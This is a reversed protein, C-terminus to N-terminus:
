GRECRGATAAGPRQADGHPHQAHGRSGGAGHAAARLLGRPAHVPVAADHAGYSRQASGAGAPVVVRDRRRSPLIVRACVTRTLPRFWRCCRWQCGCTSVVPVCRPVRARACVLCAGSFRNLFTALPQRYPSSLYGCCRFQHLVRELKCTNIVLRQLMSRPPLPLLHFLHIIAAAVQPEKGPPAIRASIITQPEQWKTLHELLRDGLSTHFCSSLLGLLRALGELLQLNMKTHDALNLLVPRVCQSLLEKPLAKDRGSSRCNNAHIVQALAAKTTQTVATVNGTLSDFFLRIYKDRLDQQPPGMFDEPAAAITAQMLNICAVRFLVRHSMSDDEREDLEFTAHSSNLHHQETVNLSPSRSQRELAKTISLAEQLRAVLEPTISFLPPDLSLALALAHLCGVQTAPGLARLPKSFVLAHMTQQHKALLEAISSGLVASAVSLGVHAM